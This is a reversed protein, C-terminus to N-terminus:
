EFEPTYDACSGVEQTFGNEFGLEDLYGLCEEYEAETVPRGIEPFESARHAPYYQGMLSVWTDPGLAARMWALIGRVADAMGPLVLIRVLLGKAAIGDRVELLGAQRHMEAIAEKAREPYDPAASYCKAAGGDIYRFDPLYIDVLGDLLRLTDPKEYANSNWVVPVSLGRDRAMRISEAAQPTFHSATVLNVNHAGKEQLDLMMAALEDATRDTGRGDRSIRYNQCYVCRMTCGSFFVAGSGREGSIVPEEWFHLRHLNVRAAAGSKCFGTGAFRDAGCERPCLTCSRMLTATDDTMGSM